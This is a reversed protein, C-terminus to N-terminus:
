VTCTEHSEVDRGCTCTGASARWQELMRLITPLRAVSRLCFDPPMGLAPCPANTSGPKRALDTWILNPCHKARVAQAIGLLAWGLVVVGLGFRQM